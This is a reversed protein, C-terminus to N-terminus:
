KSFIRIPYKFYFSQFILGKLLHYTKERVPGKSNAVTINHGNASLKKSLASGIAGAGIIGIKM